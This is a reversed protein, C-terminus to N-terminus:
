FHGFALNKTPIESKISPNQFFFYRNKYLSLLKKILSVILGSQLPRYVFGVNQEM